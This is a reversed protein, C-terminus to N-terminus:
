FFVFDTMVHLIERPLLDINIFYSTQINAIPLFTTPTLFFYYRGDCTFNRPSPSLSNKLETDQTTKSYFYNVPSELLILM